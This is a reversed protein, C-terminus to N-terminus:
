GVGTDCGQRFGVQDIKSFERVESIAERSSFGVGYALNPFDALGPQMKM